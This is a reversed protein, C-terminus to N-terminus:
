QWSFGACPICDFGGNKRFGTFKESDDNWYNFQFVSNGKLLFISEHSYKSISQSKYALTQLLMPFARYDLQTADLLLSKKSKKTNHIWSLKKIIAKIRLCIQFWNIRKFREYLKSLRFKLLLYVMQIWPFVPFM